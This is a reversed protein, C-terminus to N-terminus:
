AALQERAEDVASLAGAQMMAGAAFTYARTWAAEYAPSWASGAFERLTGLLAEAVAAYHGLSVGYMQHRKGMATLAPLLNEPHDYHTVVAIVANLLRERQTEMVAPFMPRVDPHDTFLRDYFAAILQDAVPAVLDLSEKLLRQDQSAM